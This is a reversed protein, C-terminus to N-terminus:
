VSVEIGNQKASHNCEFACNLSADIVCEYDQMRAILDGTPNEMFEIDAMAQHENAKTVRILAKVGDKPFVSRFQRYRGVFCPLSGVGHKEFSWLIMMQFSSDLVLPDALWASRMPHKVWASPVPATRIAAAIGQDSWGEVHELGHFHPGHFLRGNNYIERGKVSYPNLSIKNVPRDAEPLRAALAIEAQANVFVRDGNGRSSCLEVPVMRFSGNKVARGAMVKVSLPGAGNLTVGKLIRLNDFGAFKMGPNGHLAAHGLWEIIIAMPLVYQGDIVHSKLFPFSETSLAIEFATSLSSDAPTAVERRHTGTKKGM